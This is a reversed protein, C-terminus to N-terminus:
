KKQRIAGRSGTSRDKKKKIDVVSGSRLTKRRLFMATDADNQLRVFELVARPHANKELVVVKPDLVAGTVYVTTTGVYPIVVIEGNIVRRSGDLETCEAGENLEIRVLVDDLTAGVPVMVDTQKVAGVVHITMMEGSDITTHRGEIAAFLGLGALLGALMCAVHREYAKLQFSSPVM